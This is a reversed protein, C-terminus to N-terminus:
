ENLAKLIQDILGPDAKEGAFSLISRLPMYKVMALSMENSIAEQAADSKEDGSPMFMERIGDLLPKLVTNARPDQMLDMFISNVDYRCPIKVTSDVQVRACCAIDRSSHGIEICFEGSEVHWDHIKTNWYAFSRKDLTFSVDKSEGPELFVKEFGKLERVPRFVSSECDGVYLQVVTKGARKGTNTVRVTATLSEQDTIRDRSLRLDSFDFSTYSLGHGFPFLLETEKRDYYRYGVFIGERYEATDGEGGYFLYSPNDALKKPFSEPLKGSPNVEGFLVRVTALGVAQGGLYAELVAKVSGIWPMEVPSGNYLVVVTNPNAAAVAEILRNQCDPMRMHTRDYGESEYVDPLGAFVVAVRASRAAEVAERIMEDTACDDAVSYGRAYRIKLGEAAELASTTKFCNIHSSGGGQFRPKEAFEGIFAIEDERSLTLVGDDNKLLVMCDAAVEAALLHQAEKDWPTEPKANETFRFVINLIREVAQDVIAEDLKGSRVAEVIKRDNFGGSAPMELDLGAKVGAVRDSVAGWDSMVYGEFGWEGRLVETLLWPNESAFVGNVRNYSCMVTWPQEQKVATEFAPFYIERLTREDVEASSSMRRHEQSNAAFHKISTGVNRSQIGHILAAAMQGALYPDESFYEFNRGCLPSRKINVAPGLVV